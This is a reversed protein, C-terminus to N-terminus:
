PDNVTTPLGILSLRSRRAVKTMLVWTGPRQGRNQILTGGLSRPWILWLLYTGRFGSHWGSRPQVSQKRDAGVWSIAALVEGEGPSIRGRTHFHIETM